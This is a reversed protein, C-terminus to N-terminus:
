GGVKWKDEAVYKRIRFKKGPNSRRLTKVELEAIQKQAYWSVVQVWKRYHASWYEIIWVQGFRM